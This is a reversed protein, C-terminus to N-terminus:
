PYNPSDSDRCLGQPGNFASIAQEAGQPPLAKGNKDIM